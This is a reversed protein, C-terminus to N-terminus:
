SGFGECPDLYISKYPVPTCKSLATRFLGHGAVNGDLYKEERDGLFKLSIKGKIEIWASTCM